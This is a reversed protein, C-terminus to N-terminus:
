ARHERRRVQDLYDELGTELTYRPKFALEDVLRANDMLRGLPVPEDSTEITAEPLLERMHRTMDGVPRQESRLNFVFHQLREADLALRWAEATDAAYIVDIVQDDPPMTVSHGRLALEPYAMFNARDVLLGSAVSERALRGYGLSASIRFSVIEMGHQENYLRAMHETMEKCSGYWESPRPPEDETALSGDGRGYVAVSSANVVRTVGGLRATEFVNATGMVQTRVYPVIKEALAGGPLFAFHAIRDIEYRAITALLEQPELVDGQVIEVRSEVEEIRRRNPFRDFIVVDDHGHELVLHRTLYSGIFGTGGTILIAM